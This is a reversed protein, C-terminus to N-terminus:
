SEDHQLEMKGSGVVAARQIMLFGTLSGNTGFAVTHEDSNDGAGAANILKVVNTHLWIFAYFGGRNKLETFGVLDYDNVGM